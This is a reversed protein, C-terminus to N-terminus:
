QEDHSGQDPIEISVEKAGCCLVVSKTNPVKRTREKLKAMAAKVKSPRTSKFDHLMEHWKLERSVGKDKRALWPIM